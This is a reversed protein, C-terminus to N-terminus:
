DALADVLGWDRATPADLVRGTVALLATRRRGIRRPISVTGGAGPILGMRIEPLQFIADRQATVETCFAPIEIGAGICAGHVGASARSGLTHLLLGPARATRILHARSVDASTGFESLDGGSCFSPGNGRLEVRRDHALMSASRLADTLADRTAADYANHVEPRNLTITLSEGDDTVTVPTASPRRKRPPQAERWRGFEAGGLLTSYALSEAILADEVDLRGSMRLLQVLTIVANPNATCAADLAGLEDDSTVTVDVHPARTGEGAGVGVFLRPAPVPIHVGPGPTLMVPTLPSISDTVPAELWEADRLSRRLTEETFM